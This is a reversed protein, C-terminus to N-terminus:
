HGAPAIEGSVLPGAAGLGASDGGAHLDRDLRLDCGVRFSIVFMPALRSLDTTLDDTIGDAFYGQEPDNSLNAFPL